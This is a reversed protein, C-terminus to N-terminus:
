MSLPSPSSSSYPRSPIPYSSRVPKAKSSPSQSSQSKPQHHSIIVQCIKAKPHPYSSKPPNPKQFHTSSLSSLSSIFTKSNKRSYYPPHHPPHHSAPIGVISSLPDVRHHLSLNNKSQHQPSIIKVYASRPLNKKQLIPPRSSCRSTTSNVLPQMRRQHSPLTSPVPAINGEIM